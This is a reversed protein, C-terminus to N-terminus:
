IVEVKQTMIEELQMIEGQEQWGTDMTVALWRM